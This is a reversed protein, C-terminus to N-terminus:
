QAIMTEADEPRVAPETIQVELKVPEDVVTEVPEDAAPETAPADFPEVPMIIPGGGNQEYEDLMEAILPVVVYDQWIMSDGPKDTIAFRLAPVIFENNEGNDYRWIKLLIREPASLAVEVTDGEPSGYWMFRGGREIIKKLRAEDTEAPYLSREYNHTTYNWMGSVQNRRVNVNVHVGFPLGSEEYVEQGDIVLPYVIDMVDPVWREAVPRTEWGKRWDKNVRPTGYMSMDIGYKALFADSMAILAEDSPIDSEKLQLARYCAEDQCSEMALDRWKRWNEYISLSGEELNVNVTYGLDRDEVFSVNQLALNNFAALNVSGLDISTFQSVVAKAADLNRVRKLVPLEQDTLNLSDAYVFRYNNMEPIPLISMKADGGGGFGAPAEAAGEAAVDAVMATANGGGSQNRSMGDGGAGMGLANSSNAEALSGFARADVDTIGNTFAIRQTAPGLSAYWVVAVLVIAAAGVSAYSLRRLQMTELMHNFYITFSHNNGVAPESGALLEERLRAAFQRDFRTDPRSVLLQRILVVLEDERQALGPDLAYLDDLIKKIHNDM